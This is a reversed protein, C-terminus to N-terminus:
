LKEAKDKMITKTAMEYYPLVTLDLIETLVICFM